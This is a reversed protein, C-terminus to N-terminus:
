SKGHCCGGSQSVPVFYNKRLFTPRLNKLLHGPIIMKEDYHVFQTKHYNSLSKGIDEKSVHFDTMLVAEVQKKTKRADGIARELEKDTIINNSILYDFRTPKKRQVARQNKFFAVGLVKAIELVTTQDELTFYGGKRKNILQIIGLLYKNYSIPAALVQTTRYGTKEDWSRNFQLDPNIRKLETEDYANVINVIKGSVACYGSISDNSIPVRIEAVEDGTKIRSVIQKNVGDVVYVTIRDADLLTLIDGQLNLLIDNTDKASHIRNTINNLRKQFQLQEEVNRETAAVPGASRAIAVM